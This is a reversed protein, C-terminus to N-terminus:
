ARATAPLSIRHKDLWSYPQSSRHFCSRKIVIFRRGEHAQCNYRLSKWVDGIHSEGAQCVFGLRDRHWILPTSCLNGQLRLLAWSNCGMCSSGLQKPMGNPIVGRMSAQNPQALRAWSSAACARYIQITIKVGQVAHHKHGSGSPARPSQLLGFRPRSVGRTTFSGCLKLM